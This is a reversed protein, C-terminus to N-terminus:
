RRAKRRLFAPTQRDEYEKEGPNSPGSLDEAAVGFLDGSEESQVNENAGRLYGSGGNSRTPPVAPTPGVAGGSAEAVKPPTNFAPRQLVKLDPSSEFSAAVVTVSLEEAMTEDIITGMLLNADPHAKERIFECATQVERLGLKRSSTFNILISRAGQISADELLPNNAAKEAATLARGEGSAIGMGMVARGGAALVTRVDEFDQNILGSRVILDSIGQVGQRLVDDAESFAEEVTVDESLHNLLNENPVVILTAAAEILQDLGYAANQERKKGEMAFPKTVVAVTVAGSESAIRAIVPASGTGTGGGMGAAVFVLDAGQLHESLLATDEIAAEEGRQPQGGTGKGQTLKKGIQLKVDARSKELDQLDTNVAIFQVGQLGSDIMRNIANGGAGGAGVVKIRVLPDSDGSGMEEPDSITDSIPDSGFDPDPDLDPERLPDLDRVQDEEQMTFRLRTDEM